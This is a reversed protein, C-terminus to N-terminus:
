QASTGAANRTADQTPKSRGTLLFSVGALVAWVLIALVGFPGTWPQTEMPFLFEWIGSEHGIFSGLLIAALGASRSRLAVEGLLTGFVMGFVLMRAMVAPFSTQDDFFALAAYIVPAFWLAQLAGVLLLAPYKGLPLLRPLLFRRWGWESGLAVAACLTAGIISSLLIGAIILLPPVISMAEQSLNLPMGNEQMSQAIQNLAAGMRWDLNTFGLATAIGNYLLFVVPVAIICRLAAGQPIPWLVPADEIRKAGAMEAVLAALAPVFMLVGLLITHLFTPEEFVILGIQLMGFQAGFGVGFVVLLFILIGRIDM